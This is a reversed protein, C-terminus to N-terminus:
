ESLWDAACAFLAHHIRLLDAYGVEIEGDSVGHPAEFTIPVAVGAHYFASTLNMAPIPKGEAGEPEVPPPDRHSLGAEDLREGFLVAFERIGEKVPLPVYATPLVLPKLQCTHLNLLLDPAENRALDLLAQTVPSMPRFWEDHMINVGRDDFYGGLGEVEGRMPHIAKCGPWGYLSGGKRTGQGVRTAEEMPLGVFGDYPVRTRGDPNACPIVILRLPKMASQLDEADEGSLTRGTEITQILSLAAAMGEVEHGHIGALIVLVPRRRESRRWFANEDGAAMASNFNAHGKTELEQEGYEVAYVPRGGPTSALAHLRGRDVREEVFQRIDWERTIWWDPVPNQYRREFPATNLHHM